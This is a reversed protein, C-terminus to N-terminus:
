TTAASMLKRDELRLRTAATIAVVSHKSKTAHPPPAGLVGVVGAPLPPADPLVCVRIQSEPCHSLAFQDQPSV